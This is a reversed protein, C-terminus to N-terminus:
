ERWTVSQKTESSHGLTLFPGPESILFLRGGQNLLIPYIVWQQYEINLVSM